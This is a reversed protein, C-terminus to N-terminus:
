SVTFWHKIPCRYWSRSHRKFAEKKNEHVEWNERQWFLQALKKKIELDCNLHDKAWVPMTELEELYKKNRSQLYTECQHNHTLILSREWDQQSLALNIQEDLKGNQKKYIETFTFSLSLLLNDELWPDFVYTYIFM